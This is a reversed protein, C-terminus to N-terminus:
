SSSAPPPSSSSSAPAAQAPAPPQDTNTYNTYQSCLQGYMITYVGETLAQPGMQFNLQQIMLPDKNAQRADNNLWINYPAQVNYMKGTPSSASDVPTIVIVNASFGAYTNTASLGSPLVITDKVIIGM